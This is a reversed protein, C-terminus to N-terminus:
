YLHNLIIAINMISYRLYGLSYKLMKGNFSINSSEIVSPELGVFALMKALGKLKTFKAYSFKGHSLNRISDYDKTLVIHSINKYKQFICLFTSSINNSFFPKLEPFSKDM